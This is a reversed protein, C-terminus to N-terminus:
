AARGTAEAASNDVIVPTEFYTIQSASGYRDAIMRQREATYMREAAERSEFTAQAAHKSLRSETELVDLKSFTWYFAAFRAREL